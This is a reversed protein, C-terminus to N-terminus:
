LLRLEAQPEFLPVYKSKSYVHIWTSFCSKKCSLIESLLTEPPTGGDPFVIEWQRIWDCANPLFAWTHSFWIQWFLLVMSGVELRKTSFLALVCMRFGLAVATTVLFRASNMWLGLTPCSARWGEHLRFYHSLFPLRLEGLSWVGEPWWLKLEDLSWLQLKDLSRRPHDLNWPKKEYNM